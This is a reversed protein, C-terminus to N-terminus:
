LVVDLNSTGERGYRAGLLTELGAGESDLVSVREGQESM